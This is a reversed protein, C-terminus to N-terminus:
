PRRLVAVLMNGGATPRVTELALGAEAVLSALGGSRQYSLSNRAHSPGAVVEAGAALGRTLWGRPFRLPGSGFDTVVIRGGDALLRAADALTGLAAGRPISHLVLSIVVTDACGDDFPARPGVLLRLDAEPGLRNRARELMGSSPDTGLVVCGADRYDALAAGTGCGLDLVVSGAPTCHLERAIARLPALTPELALDYVRALLGYGDSAM